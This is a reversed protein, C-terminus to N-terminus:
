LEIDKVILKYKVAENTTYHFIAEEVFGRYLIGGSEIEVLNNDSAPEDVNDTTFSIRGCTMLPTDIDINESMPRGDIVISSNGTSSAFELHLKKAQMGIYGANALVCAIPSFAGNFVLNSITNQISISRDPVLNGNEIKALVFFIDKDSTSDTTDQGRKQVAFEIGYCDARYKSILSLKKENVTHGTSYTNNFNFEDRGNFGEYDQKEYGITIASYISGSDITYSAERANRIKITPADSKFLESRHIFHVYQTDCIASNLDGDFIRLNYDSDFYCGDGHEDYFVTDIRAKGTIPDNYAGSGEWKTYYNHGGDSNSDGLVACYPTGQIIVVQTGPEVPCMTHLLHDKSSISWSNYFIEQLRKFAAKTRPGLCYTYGFVTQMWDVFETFSSYIKAGDIGRVSEAALLYTNALRNDFDSFTVGVNIKGMSIRNLIKECLNKPRITDITELEGMGGWSIEITQALINVWVPNPADLTGFPSMEVGIWVKDGALIEVDYETVKVTRMYEDFTKYTDVWIIEGQGEVVLPQPQFEWITNTSKVLASSFMATPALEPLESPRNYEGCYRTFLSKGGIMCLKSVTGDLATRYLNYIVSIDQYGNIMDFAIGAKVHLSVNEKAELMRSGDEAEQDGYYSLAGNVAVSETILGVHSITLKRPPASVKMADTDDYSDGIIEFTLKEIMPIRDYNMPTAVPIEDGVAFEYKTGKNAKIHAALSNDVCNVKLIYNDWVLSSFDIPAAFREKWEWRNTITYLYLIAVANFGDRLYLNMLMNYVEGVFEFQSTFSRTIGNFDVRKYACQIEDWNKICEKPIEVKHGDIEIYYKTLM